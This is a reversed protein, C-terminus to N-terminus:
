DSKVTSESTANKVANLMSLREAQKQKRKESESFENFQNKLSTDTKRIEATLETIDNFRGRGIPLSMGNDKGDPFDYSAAIQKDTLPAGNINKLAESTPCFKSDDIMYPANITEMNHKTDVEFYQLKTTINITNLTKYKM